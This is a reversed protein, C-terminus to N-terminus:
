NYQWDDNPSETTNTSDNNGWYSFEEMRCALQCGDVLVWVCGELEVAANTEQPFIATWKWRETSLSDGGRCWRGQVGHLQSFNWCNDSTCEKVKIVKISDQMIRSIDGCTKIVYVKGFTKVLPSRVTAWVLGCQLDNTDVTNSRELPPPIYHAKWDWQGDGAWQRRSHMGSCRTHMGTPEVAQGQM